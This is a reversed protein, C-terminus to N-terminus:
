RGSVRAWKPTRSRWMQLAPYIAPTTIRETTVRVRLPTSCRIDLFIEDFSRDWVRRSERWLADEWDSDQELAVWLAPLRGLDQSSFEALFKLFLLGAYHYRGKTTALAYEPHELREVYLVNLAIDLADDETSLYQEFTATAEYMFADTETTYAYQVCHHLEHIAVSELIKGGTSGLGTDIRIFCSDAGDLGEIANAYGNADIEKLYM